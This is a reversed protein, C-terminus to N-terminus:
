QFMGIQGSKNKKQKKGTTDVLPEKGKVFSHVLPKEIPKTKTALKSYQPCKQYDEVTCKLVDIAQPNLSAKFEEETYQREYKPVGDCYGFMKNRLCRPLFM